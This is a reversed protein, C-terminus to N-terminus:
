GAVPYVEAFQTSEVRAVLDAASGMARANFTEITGASISGLAVIAAIGVGIALTTLTTRTRRRWLNRVTMGGPLFRSSRSEGGGEYRLAELPLLRSAWRASFPPM